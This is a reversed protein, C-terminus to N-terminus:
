NVNTVNVANGPKSGYGLRQLTRDAFDALAPFPISNRKKELTELVVDLTKDAVLSTKHAIKEDLREKYEVRRKAYLAKFLDSNTIVSLYAPSYNLRKARMALTDDPNAIMDDIIFDHWWKTPKRAKVDQYDRYTM